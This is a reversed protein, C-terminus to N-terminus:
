WGQHRRQEWWAQVRDIWNKRCINKSIRSSVTIINSPCNPWLCLQQRGMTKGRGDALWRIFKTAQRNFNVRALRQHDHQGGPHLDSISQALSGSEKVFTQWTYDGESANIGQTIAEKAKHILYRVIQVAFDGIPDFKKVAMNISRNILHCCCSFM